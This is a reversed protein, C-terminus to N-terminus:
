RRAVVWNAVPYGLWSIFIGSQKKSVPKYNFIAASLLLHTDNGFELALHNLPQM